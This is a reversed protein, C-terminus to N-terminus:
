GKSWDAFLDRGLVQAWAANFDVFLHAVALLGQILLQLM